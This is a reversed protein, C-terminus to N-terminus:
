EWGPCTGLPSDTNGPGPCSQPATQMHGFPPQPVWASNERHEAEKRPRTQLIEHRTGRGPATAPTQFLRQPSHTIHGGQEKDSPGNGAWISKGPSSPQIRTNHPEGPYYDPFPKPRLSRLAWGTGARGHCPRRGSDRPVGLGTGATDLPLLPLFRSVQSPSPTDRSCSSSLNWSNWLIGHGSVQRPRSSQWKKADRTVRQVLM